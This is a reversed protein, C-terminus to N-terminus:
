NYKVKKKRIGQGALNKQKLYLNQFMANINEKITKSNDFPLEYLDAKEKLLAKKPLGATEGRQARELTRIDEYIPNGRLEVRIKADEAIQGVPTLSNNQKREPPPVLPSKPTLAQKPERELQEILPIGLTQIRESAPLTLMKSRESEPLAMLLTQMDNSSPPLALMQKEKILKKINQELSFVVPEKKLIEVKEMTKKYLKSLIDAERENYIENYRAAENKQLQKLENDLEKERQRKFLKLSQENTFYLIATM